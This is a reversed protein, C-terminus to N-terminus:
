KTLRVILVLAINLTRELNEMEAPDATAEKHVQNVLNDQLGLQDKRDQGETLPTTAQHDQSDPLDLREQLVMQDLGERQVLRDRNEKRVKHVQNDLSGTKVPHALPDRNRTRGKSARFDRQVLMVLNVQHDAKAQSV